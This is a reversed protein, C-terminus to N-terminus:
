LPIDIEGSCSEQVSRKSRPLLTQGRKLFEEEVCAGLENRGIRRRVFVWRGQSSKEFLRKYLWGLTM